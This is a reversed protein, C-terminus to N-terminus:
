EQNLWKWQKRNIINGITRKSVDYKKSLLRYSTDGAGYEKRISSVKKDDLVSNGNRSGRASRGKKHRDATNEENTGLFLHDPNVCARNDCKHCVCLGDPVKGFKMEYSVKHAVRQVGNIKFRGYGSALFGKWVWCEDDGRKDVKEWFREKIPRIKYIRPM